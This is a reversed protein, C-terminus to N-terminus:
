KGGVMDIFQLANDVAFGQADNNFFAYVDKGDALQERAFKAFPELQALSYSSSYLKDAGHFRIYIFDATIAFIPPFKHWSYICFSVNKEALRARVSENELMSRNRFEMAVRHAPTIRELFKDLALEDSFSPPFQMLVPGRHEGLAETTKLFKWLLYTASELNKRGSHTILKSAKLIYSFNEPAIKSWKELTSEQPMRYFTYNIEVSNFKQSYFQLWKSKPLDEPYFKGVWHQYSFGSTGCFFKGVM